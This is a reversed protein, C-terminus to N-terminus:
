FIFMVIKCAFRLGLFLNFVVKFFYSGMKCFLSLFKFFINFCFVRFLGKILILFLCMLFKLLWKLALFFLLWKFFEVIVDLFRKLVKFVWIMGGRKGVLVEWFIVIFIILLNFLLSYKLFFMLFFVLIKFIFFM